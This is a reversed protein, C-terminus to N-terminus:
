FSSRFIKVNETLFPKKRVGPRGARMSALSGEAQM